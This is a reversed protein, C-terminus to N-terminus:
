QLPYHAALTTLVEQLLKAAQQTKITLEHMQQDSPHTSYLLQHQPIPIPTQSQQQQEPPNFTIIQPSQTTPNLPVIRQQQEPPNFTTIQLTKTNPNHTVMRQPQPQQPTTQQTPNPIQQLNQPYYPQANPNYKPPPLNPQIQSQTTQNPNSPLQNILYNYPQNPNYGPPTPISIRKTLNDALIQISQIPTQTQQQNQLVPPPHLIAEIHPQQPPNSVRTTTWSKMNSLTSFCKLNEQILNRAQHNLQLTNTDAYLATKFSWTSWLDPTTPPVPLNHSLPNIQHIYTKLTRFYLQLITAAPVEFMRCSPLHIPDQQIAKFYQQDKHPQIFLTFDKEEHHRLFVQIPFLTTAKIYLYLSLSTIYLNVIANRVDM